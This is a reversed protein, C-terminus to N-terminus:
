FFCFRVYLLTINPSGSVSVAWRSWALYYGSAQIIKVVPPGPLPLPLLLSGGLLLIQSLDFSSLLRWDMHGVLKGYDKKSSDVKASCHTYWWSPGQTLM